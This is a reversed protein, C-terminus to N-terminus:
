TGFYRNGFCGLGALIRGNDLHSDVQCTVVRVKPFVRHILHAAQASCLLSCFIINDEPVDHDMLVRIAMLAAAGTSCQADNLLVLRKSIDKPLKCYHLQPEGISPDTQILLKGIPADRFIQGVAQEIPAGSRVVTVACLPASFGYGTYEHGTPTQVTRNEHPLFTAAYELLLSSLRESNEIFEDRPTDKNKLTTLL